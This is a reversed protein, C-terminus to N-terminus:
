VVGAKDHILLVCQLKSFIDGGTIQKCVPWGCVCLCVKSVSCDVFQWRWRAAKPSQPQFPLLAASPSPSFGTCPSQKHKRTMSISQPPFFYVSFNVPPAGRSRLPCYRFDPVFIINATQSSWPRVFSLCCSSILAQEPPINCGDSENAIFFFFDLIQQM